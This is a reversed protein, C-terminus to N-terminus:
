RWGRGAGDPVRHLAHGGARRRALRLQRARRDPAAAHTWPQATRVLADYIATDGHPHYMGMVQGVVRACKVHSRDPRIGMEDMAYLIRRQVPKLGDRADPLARSYIVSYAYELFSTQMESSVDIDVIRETFDDEPPAPTRAMTGGEARTAEATMTGPGLRKARVVQGDFPIFPKSIGRSDSWLQATPLPVSHLRIALPAVPPQTDPRSGRYLFPKLDKTLTHRRRGGPRVARRLHLRESGLPRRAPRGSRAPVHGSWGTRTGGLVDQLDKRGIVVQRGQHGLGAGGGRGRLPAAQRGQPRPPLARRSRAPRGRRACRSRPRTAEAGEQRGAERLGQGEDRDVEAEDTSRPIAAGPQLLAVLKRYRESDLAALVVDAAAKRRAASSPRSRRSRGSGPGARAAPRRAARCATRGPHGPRPGRRASGAWWVLEDELHGAQPVDFLDAFVRITSRLRRVRSGPPTSWTRAAGPAPEEADIIVTCQEALYAGILDGLAKPRSRMRTM